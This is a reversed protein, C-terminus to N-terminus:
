FNCEETDCSGASIMRIHYNALSVNRKVTLTSFLKAAKKETSIMIIKKVISLHNSLKLFVM